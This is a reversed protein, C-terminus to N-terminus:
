SEVLENHLKLIRDCIEYNENEEFYPLIDRKLVFYQESTFGLNNSWQVGEITVDLRLIIVRDNNKNKNSIRKFEEFVCVIAEYIVPKNINYFEFYSNYEDKFNLEKFYENEISM